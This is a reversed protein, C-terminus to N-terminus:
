APLDRLATEILDGVTERSQDAPRLWVLFERNGDGGTIASACLARIGYGEVCIWGLLDYLVERLIQVHRVVGKKTRGPGAEFQPKILCVLDGDDALLRRVAPLVRRLSIFSVDVVALAMPEPLARLQRIDTQEMVVVRPDTRLTAALQAHGVDVAYVRVAGGQLLCDTFGGTSAGVDLCVRGGLSLGFATVAQQLKLGGRGVYAPAAVVRLTDVPGVPRSAQRVTSGNVEVAGSDIMQRAQSRSRALGRAVLALDLRVRDPPLAGIRSAHGNARPADM